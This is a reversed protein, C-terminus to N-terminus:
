KNIKEASRKGKKGNEDEIGFPFFVYIIPLVLNNINKEHVRPVLNNIYQM